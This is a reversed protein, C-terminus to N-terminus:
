TGEDEVPVPNSSANVVEVAQTGDHGTRSLLAGLVGVAGGLTTWLGDPVSKDLLALAVAGALAGVGILIVGVIVTFVVNRNGNM